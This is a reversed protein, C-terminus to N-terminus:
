NYALSNKDKGLCKHYLKDKNKVSKLLAPTMWGHNNSNQKQSVRITREPAFIDMTTQIKTILYESAENVEM